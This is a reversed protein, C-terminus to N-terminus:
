ARGETLTNLMEQSWEHLWEAKDDAPMEPHNLVETAAPFHSDFDTGFMWATVVYMCGHYETYLGYSKSKEVQAAVPGRLESADMTKANSFQEQLFAIVRDVYETEQKEAFRQLMEKRIIQM